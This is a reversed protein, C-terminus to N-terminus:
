LSCEYLITELEYIYHNGCDYCATSKFRLSKLERISILTDKLMACRQSFEEIQTYGFHDYAEKPAPYQEKTLQRLNATHRLLEKPTDTSFDNDKLNITTLQSFQSLAPLPIRIDADQM